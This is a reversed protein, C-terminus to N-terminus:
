LWSNSRFPFIGVVLFRLLLLLGSLKERGGGGRLGSFATCGDDGAFIFLLTDILWEEAVILM